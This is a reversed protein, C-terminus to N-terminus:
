VDVYRIRTHTAASYQADVGANLGMAVLYLSGSQIDTIAGTNSTAAYVAPLHVKIYENFEWKADTESSVQRPQNASAGGGVDTKFRLDRLMIFRDANDLNTGSRSNTTVAGASSVDALLAGISFAAGDPQKDFVLMLRLYDATPAAGAQNQYVYGTLHIRMIDIKRGARQYANSGQVLGNILTFSAGNVFTNTAQVDVSKMELLARGAQPIARDAYSHFKRRAAGTNTKQRKRHHM